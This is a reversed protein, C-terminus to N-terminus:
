MNEERGASKYDLSPERNISEFRSEDNDTKKKKEKQRGPEIRKTNKRNFTQGNFLPFLIYLVDCSYELLNITKRM